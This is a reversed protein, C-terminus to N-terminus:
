QPHSGAVRFNVYLNMLYNWVGVIGAILVRSILYNIGAIDVLVYMMGMVVVLGTGAILLFIAYGAHVSRLTGHFVFRRSLLYNISVAITFAIGASIVYQVHLFDTLLYLLVLDFLFTAVGVSSYKVFRVIAKHEMYASYWM